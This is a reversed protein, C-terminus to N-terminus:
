GTLSLSPRGSVMGVQLASGRKAARQSLVAFAVHSGPVDSSFGHQPIGTPFTEWSQHEPTAPANRGQIHMSGLFCCSEFAMGSWRHGSPWWTLWSLATRGGDQDDWVAHVYALAGLWCRPAPVVTLASSLLASLIQPFGRAEQSAEQGGPNGAAPGSRLGGLFLHLKTWLYGACCVGCSLTFGWEMRSQLGCRMRSVGKLVLRGAQWTGVAESFVRQPLSGADGPQVPSLCCYDVGVSSPALPVGLDGERHLAHSCPSCPGCTCSCRPKM